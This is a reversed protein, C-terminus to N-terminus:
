PPHWGRTAAPSGRLPLPYRRHWPQRSPSHEPSQQASEIEGELSEGARMLKGSEQELETRVARLEEALKRFLISSVVVGEMALTQAAHRRIDAQISGVWARGRDRNAVDFEDLTRDILERVKQSIRDRWETVSLGKPPASATVQQHIRDKLTLL